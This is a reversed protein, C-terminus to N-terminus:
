RKVVQSLEIIKMAGAFHGWSHGWKSIGLDSIAFGCSISGSGYRRIADHVTFQWFRDEAVLRKRAEDGLGRVVM